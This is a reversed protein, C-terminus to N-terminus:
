YHQFAGRKYTRNGVYKQNVVFFGNSSFDNNYTQFNLKSLICAGSSFILCKKEAGIPSSVCYFLSLTVYLQAILVNM